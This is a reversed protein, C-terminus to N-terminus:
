GGNVVEMWDLGRHRRRTTWIFNIPSAQHFSQAMKNGHSQYNNFVYFISKSKHDYIQPIDLDILLRITRSDCLDHVARESILRCFKRFVLSGYRPRQNDKSARQNIVIVMIVISLYDSTMHRRYRGDGREVM